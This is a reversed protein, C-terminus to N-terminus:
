FLLELKTRGQRSSCSSVRISAPVQLKPTDLKMFYDISTCTVIAILVAFDSVTSRVQRSHLVNSYTYSSAALQFSATMRM